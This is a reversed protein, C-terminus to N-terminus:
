RIKKLTALISQKVRDLTPEPKDVLEIQALLSRLLDKGNQVAAFHDLPLKQETWLADSQAPFHNLWSEFGPQDLDSRRVLSLVAAAMRENEGFVFTHGDQELKQSIVELIRTQASPKLRSNRGLFKLLDATHATAHMWGKEPDYGRLDREGSFYAIASNLLESFEADTLFPKRNNLAAILSLELASFSRLLVSDTGREGIGVTLNKECKQILPRLEDSSLLGDRYIWVASIGYVLDDRLEPDPSGLNDTLDDILSPASEGKPAQYKNEVIQKWFQKDHHVHQQAHAPCYVSLGCVVTSVVRRWIYKRSTLAYTM